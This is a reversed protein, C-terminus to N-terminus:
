GCHQLEVSIVWLATAGSINGVISYSWQYYGCHQLEVSIVWLATAGSINGMISHIVNTCLYDFVYLYSIQKEKLYESIWSPAKRTLRLCLLVAYSM